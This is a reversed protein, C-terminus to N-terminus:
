RARECRPPAGTLEVVDGKLGLHAITVRDGPLPVLGADGSAPDPDPTPMAVRQGADRLRSRSAELSKRTREGRKLTDWEANVARRVDAVLKQAEAQARAVTDRASARAADAEAQARRLLAASDLERKEIVAAREAERRDRADLRAILEQLARQQTSRHGRAREILAPPLGLRAGIALAYSQGPRDYVLRFTPELREGDFEM